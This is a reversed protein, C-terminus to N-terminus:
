CSVDPNLHCNAEVERSPIPFLTGPALSAISAPDWTDSVIGFRYMDALRRGTMLLQSQREYVLLDRASIGSEPRWPTLSEFARVQNVHDAFTAEDGRALADEAILLHMERASVVGLVGTDCPGDAHEEFTTIFREVWPDPVRDIPDMLVVSDVLTMNPTLVAYRAGFGLNDFCNVQWLTESTQVQAQWLFDYRWDSGDMSLAAQADQAAGASMVLGGGSVDAPPPFVKKRVARGHQARARIALLDRALAGSSQIALGKSAYDVAQDYLVPMNESGLAPGPDTRDSPAYDEMGDALTAYAIAGYLYARALLTRDRLEGAADLSDLVHIAEDAMWQASAFWGFETNLGANEPESIKGLDLDRWWTHAGVFRTEDSATSLLTLMRDWGEQVSRLAGNAWIEASQANRIDEDNISSPNEVELLSDCAASMTVLLFFAAPGYARELRM